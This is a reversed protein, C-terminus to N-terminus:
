AKAPAPQPPAAPARQVGGPLGPVPAVEPPMVINGTEFDMATPRLELNYYESKPNEAIDSWRIMQGTYASIRAGIAALTSEACARADAPPNGELVGKILAVHEQVYPDPSELKIQPINVERGTLKGNGLCEGGAGRFFEGVRTYCGAIQRCQSHILVGDGYDIQTSFFDFQDGTRRHFRAGYGLFSQPVRGLFWNAVDINHVHQEVVHDGSMQSFNLWNRALYEADSWGPQREKFWLSGVVFYIAGGLIPGIAGAEILAKNKLYTADYRRQTGAVVGLKKAKAREATALVRRVGVPDVAVPKEIFCHKGAEVMADFHVPRFNPPTAMIVFQADSAAAKKYSDFGWQCLSPDVKLAAALNKARDEFADCLSVVEIDHKLLNAAARFNSIAGTGRGGCGVVAVKLKPRPVPTPTATPTPTAATEQARSAALGFAGIGAATLTTDRIFKRRSLGTEAAQPPTDTTAQAPHNLHMPIFSPIFFGLTGPEPVVALISAANKPLIEAYARRAAKHYSPPIVLRLRRGSVDDAAASRRVTVAPFEGAPRCARNRAETVSQAAQNPRSPVSSSTYKKM